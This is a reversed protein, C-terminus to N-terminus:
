SRTPLHDVAKVQLVTTKVEGAGSEPEDTPDGGVPRPTLDLFRSGLFRYTSRDFVLELRGGDSAQSLGIGPRGLADTAHQDVKVRPVDALFEFIAPEGAPDHGALM